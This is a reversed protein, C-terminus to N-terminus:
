KRKKKISVQIYSVVGLIILLLAHSGHSLTACLLALSTMGEAGLYITSIAMGVLYHYPGINGPTPIVSAINGVASIFIADVLSLHDLGPIALFTFYTMLIYMFWIGVTYLLFLLKKEMKVFSAFGGLIGELWKAIKGLLAVRDRFIFVAALLAALILMATGALLWISISFRSAFPAIVHEQMFPMIVSSNGALAAFILLLIALVDWSREMIITGFVKDFSAKGTAVFGCRYFEGVGPIVISLFNGINSGHWVSYRSISEDLPLMQNRWREARFILAIVAVVMSLIIYWWNTQTLAHFFENWDNGRFSFYVLVVAVLVSVLYKITDKVKKNM